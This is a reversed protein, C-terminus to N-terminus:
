KELVWRYGTGQNQQISYHITEGSFYNIDYPKYKDIKDSTNITIEELWTDDKEWKGVQNKENNKIELKKFTEYFFVDMRVEPHTGITRDIFKRDEENFIGKILQDNLLNKLNEFIHQKEDVDPDKKFDSAIKRMYYAVIRFKNKETKEKLCDEIDSYTGERVANECERERLEKQNNFKAKLKKSQKIYLSNKKSKNNLKKREKNYVSKKRPKNKFKKLTNRFTETEQKLCVEINPYTGNEVGDKCIEERLPKQNNFKKQLKESRGIYKNFKRKKGVNSNKISNLYVCGARGLDRYPPDGKKCEEYNYETSKTKFNNLTRKVSNKNKNNISNLLRKEMEKDELSSIKKGKKMEHNIFDNESLTNYNAKFKENIEKEIDQKTQEFNSNEPINNDAGIGLKKRAQLDISGEEAIVNKMFKNKKNETNLKYREMGKEMKKRKKSDTTNYKKNREKNREIDREKEKYETNAASKKSNIEKNKAAIKERAEKAKKKPLEGIRKVGFAELVDTKAILKENKVLKNERNKNIKDKTEQPASELYKNVNKEQLKRYEPKKTMDEKEFKTEINQKEKTQYKGKKENDFNEYKDDYKERLVERKENEIRKNIIDQQKKPDTISSIEPDRLADAKINKAIKKLLKSKPDNFNFNALQEKIYNEKAGEKLKTQTTLSTKYEELSNQKITKQDGPPLLNREQNSRTRELKEREKNINEPSLREQKFKDLSTQTKQEKTLKAYALEASKVLNKKARADDVRTTNEAVKKTREDSIKKTERAAVLAPNKNLTNLQKKLQDKACTGRVRCSLTKKKNSKSFTKELEAREKKGEPTKPFSAELM